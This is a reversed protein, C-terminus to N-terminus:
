RGLHQLAPDTDRAQEGFDELGLTSARDVMIQYRQEMTLKSEGRWSASTNFSLITAGPVQEEWEYFLNFEDRISQQWDKLMGPQSFFMHNYVYQEYDWHSGFIRDREEPERKWISEGVQWLKSDMTQPFYRSGSLMYVPFRDTFRAGEAKSFLRFDSYQGFMSVPRVCLADADTFFLNHGQRHMEQTQDFIDKFMEVYHRIPRHGSLFVVDDVDVMNKRFSAACLKSMKVFWPYARSWDTLHYVPMIVLNM